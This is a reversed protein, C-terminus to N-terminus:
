HFGAVLSYDMVMQAAAMCVTFLSLALILVVSGADYYMQGERNMAYAILTEAGLLILVVPWLSAIMRLTLAPVALRLLFLTGFAIMSIGATLTGVRRNKTM